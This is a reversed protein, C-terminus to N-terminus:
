FLLLYLYFTQLLYLYIFLSFSVLFFGCSHLAAQLKLLEHQAASPSTLNAIDIIPVHFDSESPLLADRFGVGGEDYIYNNPLLNESNLALEQVSRSSVIEVEASVEM